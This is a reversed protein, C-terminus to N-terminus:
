DPVSAFENKGGTTGYLARVLWRLGLRDLLDRLLPPCFDRRPHHYISGQDTYPVDLQCPQDYCCGCHECEFCLNLEMDVYHHETMALAREPIIGDLVLFMKSSDRPGYLGYGPTVCDHRALIM